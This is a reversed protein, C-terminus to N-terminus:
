FANMRNTVFNRIPFHFFEEFFINTLFTFFSGKGIFFKGTHEVFFSVVDRATGYGFVTLLQINRYCPQPSLNSALKFFQPNSFKHIITLRYNM